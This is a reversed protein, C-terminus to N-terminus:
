AELLRMIEDVQSKKISLEANLIGVKEKIQNISSVNNNEDQTISDLSKNLSSLTADINERLSDLFANTEGALTATIMDPIQKDFVTELTTSVQSLVEGKSAKLDTFIIWKKKKLEALYSRELAELSINIEDRVAQFDIIPSFLHLWRSGLVEKTIDKLLSKTEDQYDKLNDEFTKGFGTRFFAFIQRETLKKLEYHTFDRVEQFSTQSQLWLEFDDKIKNRLECLKEITKNKEDFTIKSLKAKRQDFETRLNRQLELIKKKKSLIDGQNLSLSEIKDLVIGIESTMEYIKDNCYSKVKQKFSRIIGDGKDKMIHENIASVLEPLNGNNDLLHQPIRKQHFVEDESLIRGDTSKEAIIAAMTSIPYVKKDNLLDRKKLSPQNMLTNTVYNKIDNESDVTDCQSLVLLIKESPIYQLFNDIFWLDFKSLPQSSHLLYIVASSKDIFDKTLQSRYPNPDNLGPTDVLIVDKVLENNVTIEVFDVFPTFDGDKAIYRSLLNIDTHNETLPTGKIKDTEKIGKLARVHLEERLHVEYYSKSDPSENIKRSKLDEWKSMSYYHVRFCTKEGYQIKTVKATWPTADAPIIGEGNFLLYNLLTSKGTKIQGCISVIFKENLLNLRQEELTEKTFHKGLYNIPVIGNKILRDMALLINEKQNSYKDSLSKM